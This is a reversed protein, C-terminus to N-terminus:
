IKKARLIKTGHVILTALMTGKEPSVMINVSRDPHNEPGFVKKGHCGSYSTFVKGQWTDYSQYLASFTKKLSKQKQWDKKQGRAVSLPGFFRSSPRVEPQHRCLM